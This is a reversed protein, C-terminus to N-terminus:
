FGCEAYTPFSKQAGRKQVSLAAAHSAKKMAEEV